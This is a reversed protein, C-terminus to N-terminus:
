SIHSQNKETKKTTYHYIVMVLKTVCQKGIKVLQILALKADLLYRLKFKYNWDQPACSVFRSSVMRATIFNSGLFVFFVTSSWKNM